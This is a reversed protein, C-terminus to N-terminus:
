TRAGVHKSGAVGRLVQLHNIVHHATAHEAAVAGAGAGVGLKAGGHAEVQAVGERQEGALAHEPPTPAPRSEAAQCSDPTDRRSECPLVNLRVAQAHSNHPKGSVDGSWGAM